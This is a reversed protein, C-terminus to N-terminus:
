VIGKSRLRLFLWLLLDMIVLDLVISRLDSAVGGVQRIITKQCMGSGGRWDVVVVAVVIFHFGCRVRARIFRGGHLLLLLLLIPICIV